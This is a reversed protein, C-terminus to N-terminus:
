FHVWTNEEGPQFLGFFYLSFSQLDLYHVTVVEDHTSIEVQVLEVGDLVAFYRKLDGVVDVLVLVQQIFLIFNLL